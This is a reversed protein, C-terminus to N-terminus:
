GSDVSSTCDSGEVQERGLDSFEPIDTGEPEQECTAKELEAFWRAVAEKAEDVAHFDGLDVPHLKARWVPTALHIAGQFSRDYFVHVLHRGGVTVVDTLELRDITSM